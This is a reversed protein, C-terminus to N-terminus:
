YKKQQNEECTLCYWNELNEITEPYMLCNCVECIPIIKAKTGNFILM